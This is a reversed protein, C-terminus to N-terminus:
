ECSFVEILHKNASTPIISNFSSDSFLSSKLSVNAYKHTHVFQQASCKNGGIPIIGHKLPRLLSRSGPFSVHLKVPPLVCLPTWHCHAPYSFQISLPSASPLLVMVVCLFRNIYCFHPKYLMKM